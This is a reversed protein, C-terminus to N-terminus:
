SLSQSNLKDFMEIPTVLNLSHHPRKYNYRQCFMDLAEQQLEPTEELGYITYQQDIVTRIVREVFPNQKPSAPSSFVHKIGRRKLDEDFVGLFEGGNDTGVYEIEEFPYEQDLYVFFKRTSESTIRKYLKTALLRTAHDLAAFQYWKERGIRLHKVDLYVLGGPKAMAKKPVSYMHKRNKRRKPKGKPKKKRKLGSENIVRQIQQQGYRIGYENEIYKQLTVKGSGPLEYKRAEYIRQWDEDSLESKRVRKPRKSREELTTLNYPQYRDHWFKITSYPQDFHRSCLAVSNGKSIYDMWKLRMQAKKSLKQGYTWGKKYPFIYKLRTQTGYNSM